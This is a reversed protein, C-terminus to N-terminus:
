LTFTKPTIYLSLTNDRLSKGRILIILIRIIKCSLIYRRLTYRRIRLRRRISITVKGRNLISNIIELLIYGGKLIIGKINIVNKV